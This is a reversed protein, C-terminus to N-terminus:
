SEDFQCSGRRVYAHAWHDATIARVQSTGSDDQVCNADSFRVQFRNAELDDQSLNQTLDNQSCFTTLHANFNACSAHTKAIVCVRSGEDALQRCLGATWYSKGVVPPGTILMSSGALIM